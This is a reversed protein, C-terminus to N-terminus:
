ANMNAGDLYVQGGVDHVKDIIAIVDPDFLGFTSPYTIM